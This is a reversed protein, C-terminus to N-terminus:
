DGPIIDPTAALEVSNDPFGEVAHVGVACISVM